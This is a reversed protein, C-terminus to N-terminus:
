RRPRPVMRYLEVMAKLRDGSVGYLDRLRARIRPVSLADAPEGSAAEIAYQVDALDRNHRRRDASAAFLKLVVYDEVRPVPVRIGEIVADGAHQFAISFPGTPATSSALAAVELRVIRDRWHYEFAHREAPIPTFGAARMAAADMEPRDVLVVDIDGTSAARVAIDRFTGGIVMFRIGARRAARAFARFAPGHGITSLRGRRHPRHTSADDAPHLLM